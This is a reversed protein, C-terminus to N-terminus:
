FAPVPRYVCLPRAKRDGAVNCIHWDGDKSQRIQAGRVEQGSVLDLVRDWALERVESASIPRCDRDSCCDGDYWSHANAPTTAKQLAFGIFLIIILIAIIYIILARAFM